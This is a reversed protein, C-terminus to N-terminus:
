SVGQVAAIAEKRVREMGEAERSKILRSDRVKEDLFWLIGAALSPTERAPRFVKEARAKGGFAEKRCYRLLSVMFCEVFAVAGRKLGPLELPKLINIGLSGSAVLSGYFRAVNGKRRKDKMREGEATEEHEESIEGFLPEGLSRFLKWLRDQLAFRVRSNECAREAVLAYYTNYRVESGVCQVLVRAIELQEERKLRLNAYQLYGQEDDGASMIATFIATQAATSLGQARAKAPYDPLVLDLNEEDLHKINDEDEDPLQEQTVATRGSREIAEPDPAAPVSAGVLWWEGRSEAEEVDVLSMGMPALGDLRRSQSKLEGLRKKMRLVHELVVASDVSKSRPKSNKLDDIAEVMFKTRTSTESHGVNSIAKSLVVSVNRLAQRDERRLLRGIMHCIRLLLEVNLESLDAVLREMLDFIIKCGLVQFAYLQTIFAVINSPEKRISPQSGLEKAVSEYEDTFIKVVRRILHSGFSAGVIKYLAACFGGLLVFFQDPLSEPKCIQAMLTDVLHENVDGRANKLYIKEMERSISLLNTDTLRNVLGRIQRQLQSRAQEESKSDHRRAPPVYQAVMAATLPAKYPNEKRRSLTLSPSPNSDGDSHAEDTANERGQDGDLESEDGSSSCAEHYGTGASEDSGARAEDDKRLLHHKRRKSSLWDDYERKRKSPLDDSKSEDGEDLDALLIDLGDEKFALPLSKRGKKIGLKRELEEIEADDQALSARIARTHGRSNSAASRSDITQVQQSTEDDSNNLSDVESSEAEGRGRKIGEDKSTKVAQTSRGSHPPSSGKRANKKIKEVLRGENHSQSECLKKARPPRRIKRRSPPDIQMSKFLRKQLEPVTSPMFRTALWPEFVKSTRPSDTKSDYRM